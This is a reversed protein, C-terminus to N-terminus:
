KASDQNLRYDITVCSTGEPECYYSVVNFTAFGEGSLLQVAYTHNKSKLLHTMYSYDYWGSIAPNQLQGDVQKDFAWSLDAALTAKDLLVDGLDAAGGPARFVYRQVLLDAGPGVENITGRSLNVPVWHERVSADLTIRFSGDTQPQARDTIPFGPEVNPAIMSGAAFVLVCTVIFAILGVTIFRPLSSIAHDKDADEESVPPPHHSNQDDQEIM